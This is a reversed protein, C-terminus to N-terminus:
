NAGTINGEPDLTYNREPSSILQNNADYNYERKINQLKPNGTNNAAPDLGLGAEVIDPVGNNNSDKLGVPLGDTGLDTMSRVTIAVNPSTAGFWERSEQVMRWQFNYTGPTQPATITFTFTKEQGPGVAAGLAVRTSTRWITNDAPNYSGLGHPNAGGTAWTTGGTNRMTVSVSATQGPYMTAPVDQSVYVANNALIAPLTTFSLPASPASTNNAADVAQVTVNYTTAASLGSLAYTTTSPTGVVVGDRLVKYGSVGVNDMSATWTLSAGSNTVNSVALGTPTSPAQTDPASALVNITIRKNAFGGFPGNAYGPWGSIGYMREGPVNGTFAETYITYTGTGSPTWTVTRASTTTAPTAGLTAAGNQIGFWVPGPSYGYINHESLWGEATATSSITLTEGVLMNLTGGGTASVQGNRASASINLSKLGAGRAGFTHTWETVVNSPYEGNLRVANIVVTSGASFYYEGEESFSGNIRYSCTESYPIYVYGYGSEDPEIFQPAEPGRLKDFTYTWMTVANSPFSFGEAAEVTVTVTTGFPFYCEGEGTFGNIRYIVWDSYSPMDVRGYDDETEPDIFPPPGPPPLEGFTHTWTTVANSPFYYGSAPAATVTVTTGHPFYPDTSEASQGNIYYYVNEANPINIYGYDGPYSPPTFGPAPPVIYNSPPSGVTFSWQTTTGIPFHYGVAPEATITITTIEGENVWIYVTGAEEAGNVRYIVGESDPITVVAEGGDAGPNSVTPAAPPSTPETGSAIVTYGSLGFISTGVYVSYYNGYDDYDSDWIEDTDRVYAIPTGEIWGDDSMSQRISNRLWGRLQELTEGEVGWIQQLFNRIAEDTTTGSVQFATGVYTQGGYSAVENLFNDVPDWYLTIYKGDISSGGGAIAGYLSASNATGNNYSVSFPTATLTITAHASSTSFLAAFLFVALACPNRFISFRKNM